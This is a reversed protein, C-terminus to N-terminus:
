LYPICRRVLKVDAPVLIGTKRLRRKMKQSKKALIHRMKSRKFKIKGSGTVSFRKAAARRTKMKVKTGAM